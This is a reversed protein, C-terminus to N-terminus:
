RDQMATRISFRGAQSSKGFGHRRRVGLFHASVLDALHEKAKELAFAM